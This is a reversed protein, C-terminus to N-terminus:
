EISEPADAPGGQEPESGIREPVFHDPNSTRESYSHNGCRHYDSADADEIKTPVFLFKLVPDLAHERSRQLM